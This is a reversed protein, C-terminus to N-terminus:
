RLREMVYSAASVQLRYDVPDYESRGNEGSPAGSAAHSSAASGPRSSQSNPTQQHAVAPSASSGGNSTARSPPPVNPNDLHHRFLGALRHVSNSTTLLLKM